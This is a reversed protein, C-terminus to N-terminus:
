FDVNELKERKFCTLATQRTCNIVEVGENKLANALINMHAIWQTFDNQNSLCRVHKGHWHTGQMDYGLLIIRKAGMLYALNIAQYGSNGGTRIFEKGLGNKPADQKWFEVKPHRYQISAKRGKFELAEPYKEWWAEDCAYLMYAWPALQYTNNIVIVKAKGRCYDVDDQTLSQGSACIVYTTM